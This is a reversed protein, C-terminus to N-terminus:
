NPLGNELKIEDEEPKILWDLSILMATSITLNFREFVELPINYNKLEVESDLLEDLDKALLEFKDPELANLDYSKDAKEPVEHEVYIKKSLDRYTELERDLEKGLKYVNLTVSPPFKLEQLEKFAGVSGIIKRFTINM